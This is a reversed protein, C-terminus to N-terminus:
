LPLDTKMLCVQKKYRHDIEAIDRQLTKSLNDRDENMRKNLHQEDGLHKIRSMMDQQNAHLLQLNQNFGQLKEDNLTLASSFREIRHYMETKLDNFKNNVMNVVPEQAKFCHNELRKTRVDFELIRGTTLKLKDSIFSEM